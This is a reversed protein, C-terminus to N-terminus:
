SNKYVKEIGVNIAHPFVLLAVSVKVLVVLWRRQKYVQEALLANTNVRTQWVELTM